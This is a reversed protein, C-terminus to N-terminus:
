KSHNNAFHEAAEAIMDHTYDIDKYGRIQIKDYKKKELKKYEKFFILLEEQVHAPLDEVTNVENRRPDLKEVPVAIVKPDEGEDDITDIMGIIKCKILCGPFTPNTVMVAVDVPDGDKAITQPIFGYDFPYFMSHHLVRDLKYLGMHEDYEYKNQSGKPIDIIVNIFGKEADAYPAIDYVLNM